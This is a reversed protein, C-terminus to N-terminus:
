LAHDIGLEEYRLVAPKGLCEAAYQVKAASEVAISTKFADRLNPGVTLLGHNGWVVANKSGMVDAMARGFEYNNSLQFPMIPVEGKTYIVMNVLVGEIPRGLTGWVNSYIPESHVVAQVDPRADYVARHVTVESSPGHDGELVAGDYGVVVLDDISMRDYEMDTPTIVIADHEPLRVSINGQTNFNLGYKMSELCYNLVQERIETSARSM